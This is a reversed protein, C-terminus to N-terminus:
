SFRERRRSRKGKQRTTHTKSATRSHRECTSTCACRTRPLPMSEESEESADIGSVSFDEATVFPSLHVSSSFREALAECEGVLLMTNDKGISGNTGSLRVASLLTFMDALVAAADVNGAAFYAITRPVGAATLALERVDDAASDHVRQALVSFVHAIREAKLYCFYWDRRGKFLASAVATNHFSSQTDSM